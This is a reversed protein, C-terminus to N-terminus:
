EKLHKPTLAFNCVPCTPKTAEFVEEWNLFGHKEVSGGNLRVLSYSEWQRSFPADNERMIIQGEHGCPCVVSYNTRTTM